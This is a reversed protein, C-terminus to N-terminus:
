GPPTSSSASRYPPSAAGLSGTDQAVRRITGPLLATRDTLERASTLSLGTANVPSYWWAFIEPPEDDPAQLPPVLSYLTQPDVLMFPPPRSELTPLILDSWSCWYAPLETVFSDGSLDHYIGAVPASGTAFEVTDGPRLGREAAFRDTIWLGPGATGSLVEVHDLADARSFLTVATNVPDQGPSLEADHVLVRYPTPLGLQRMADPVFQDGTEIEAGTQQRYYDGFGLTTEAVAPNSVTPSSQEVCDAEVSRTLTASGTSALFLPGSAAAIGLISTALVLALVVGPTRFLLLPARTWPASWATGRGRM